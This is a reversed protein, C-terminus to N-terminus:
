GKIVAFPKLRAVRQTVGGAELVGVVDAVDKYSAPMKGFPVLFTGAPTVPCAMYSSIRDM